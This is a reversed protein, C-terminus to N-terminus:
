SPIVDGPSPHRPIDGRHSRPADAPHGLGSEFGMPASSTTNGGQKVM